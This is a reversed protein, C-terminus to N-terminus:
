PLDGIDVRGTAVSLDVPFILRGGPCPMKTGIFFPVAHPDWNLADHLPMEWCTIERVPFSLDDLYLIVELILGPAYM